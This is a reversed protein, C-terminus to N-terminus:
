SVAHWPSPLTDPWSIASMHHITGGSWTRLVGRNVAVVEFVREWDIAVAVGAARDVHDAYLISGVDM